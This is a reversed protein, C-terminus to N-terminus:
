NEWATNRARNFSSTHPGMSSVAARGRERATLSHISSYFLAGFVVYHVQTECEKKGPLLSENLSCGAVILSNTHWASPAEITLPLKTRLWEYCSLIFQSFTSVMSLACPDM